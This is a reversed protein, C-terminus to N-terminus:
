TIAGTRAALMSPAPRRAAPPDRSVRFVWLAYSTLNMLPIILWNWLIGLLWTGGMVETIWYMGGVAIAFSGVTSFAFRIPQLRDFPRDVFSVKGHALYSLPLTLAFAAISAWTPAFLFPPHVFAAVALSYFVSIGLGVCGYRMLRSQAAIFVDHRM